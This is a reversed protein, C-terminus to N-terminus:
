FVISVIKRKGDPSIIEVRYIGSPVKQAPQIKEIAVGGNYQVKKQLFV